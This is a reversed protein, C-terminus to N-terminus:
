IMIWLDTGYCTYGLNCVCAKAPDQWGIGQREERNKDCPFVYVLVAKQRAKWNDGHIEYGPVDLIIKFVNGKAVHYNVLAIFHLYFTAVIHWSSATIHLLAPQYEITVKPDSLTVKKQVDESRIIM